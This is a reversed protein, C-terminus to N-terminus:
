GGLTGMFKGFAYAVIAVLVYVIAHIWFLRWKSMRIMRIRLELKGNREM